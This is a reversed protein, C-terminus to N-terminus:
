FSGQVELRLWHEPNPRREMTSTRSDTYALIDYRLRIRFTRPLRYMVDLYAWVSDELYDSV